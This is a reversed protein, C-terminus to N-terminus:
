LCSGLDILWEWDRKGKEREKGLRIFKVFNSFNIVGIWMTTPMIKEM